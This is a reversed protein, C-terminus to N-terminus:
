GRILLMALGWPQTHTGPTIVLRSRKLVVASYGMSRVLRGGGGWCWHLPWSVEQQQLRLEPWQSFKLLEGHGRWGNVQGPSHPLGLSHTNLLLEYCPQQAPVGALIFDLHGGCGCPPQHWLHSSIQTNQLESLALYCRISYQSKPYWLDSSTTQSLCHPYPLEKDGKLRTIVSGNRRM